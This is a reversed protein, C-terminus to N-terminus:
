PANAPHVAHTAASAILRTAAETIATGLLKAFCAYGWDNMHLEDPASFTDFPIHQIDFWNRMIAYRHFLDVNEEKATVAIQDVMASTESKAIVKPTYQPDILAVDAGAAKLEEIGEHLLVSHPKLPHDRLVSNTGVQWLVLDPHEAIVGKEFRAMMDSTEEGNVGRNLVRIDHGPLRENLEVALRSPYNAAPSSAGAGATSSSGIAVITLPMDNALRRTTRRLPIDFRTLAAPTKCAFPSIAMPSSAPPASATNTRKSPAPLAGPTPTAAPVITPTVATATTVIRTAAPMQANVPVLMGAILAAAATCVFCRTINRSLRSM